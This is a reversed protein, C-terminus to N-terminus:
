VRLHNGEPIRVGLLQAAAAALSPELARPELEVGKAHRDVIV